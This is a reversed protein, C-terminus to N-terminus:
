TALPPRAGGLAQGLAEIERSPAVGLTTLRQRCRRYLALADAHRGLARHCRILRCYLTEADPDIELANEYCRAARSLDGRAEHHAGLQEIARLVRGHLRDRREVAWTAPEGALFPGAYVSWLQRELADIESPAASSQLAAELRQLVREAAEADVWVFRGNLTLRRDKLVLIADDGFLKRLRHLAMEFSQHALDGDADPWLGDVLADQSVDRGGFAILAKLLELPRRSAKGTFDMPEGDKLVAFRGLTHIRFPWPWNPPVPMDAPPPLRRKRIVDAVYKEEIGHALAIAYLRAMTRSSWWTHNQFQQANGVRLAHRLHEACTAHDGALMAIEAEAVFTLYEVTQAKMTRGEARAQRILALGAEADGLRCLVRGLDNRFVAAPFSAGATEAMALATGAFERAGALSGQTLRYWGGLYQYVAVDMPRSTGVCREMRELYRAALGAEDSSLSAFVGQACLLMDWTHVGSTGGIELARDVCAICEANAASMWYYGAAMTYWTIQTLPAVGPRRIQAGLTTVLLEAKALDGIWWTYYILLHNGVNVQLRPDGGHLVIERVRQEWRPMDPHQPEAYMLALFVGCAVQADLEPNALRPQALLVDAMEALWRKLPKYDGWGLVLSDVLACWTLCRGASDANAKFREYAQEFHAQAQPVDLPFRCMGRWYDLWPDRAYAEAPLHSLWEELIQSRGQEILTRAHKGILRALGEADRAAVLLEAANEPEGDADLLRAAQKRLADFQRPVFTSPARSLLFERFLPHYEYTPEPLPHKLTFYNKGHLEALLRGAAPAGTLEELRSAKMKPLVASALLIGQTEADLKAFIEGAFYDFLVQPTSDALSRASESTDDGELLLVLGAAWGRTKGHLEQYSAPARRGRQRMRVIGRVEDLTLQLDEWGIVTVTNNARGRAQEAPPPTRSLVITGFDQPLAALGERMVAHLAAAASVEHYNDFVLVFPPALQSALAEFYRRAFVPLSGLYEATLHPLARRRRPAAYGAVLGLYHFFTALDDDGQDLQYWLHRLKREALYSSVLTTKGAGPPATIWILSRRAGDLRRFLRERLFVDTLRPRTLKALHASSQSSRRVPANHRCAAPFDV